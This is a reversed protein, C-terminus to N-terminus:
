PLIADYKHNAQIVKYNYRRTVGCQIKTRSVPSGAIDKGVIVLGKTMKPNVFGVDDAVDEKGCWHNRPDRLQYTTNAGLPLFVKTKKLVKMKLSATLYPFDFLTTGRTGTLSLGNAFGPVNETIAEASAVASTFSLEKTDDYLAVEYIDIEQPACTEQAGNLEMCRITIDLVAGSFLVKSAGSSIRSDLSFISNIDNVGRDTGSEVGNAGYLWASVLTQPKSTGNSEDVLFNNKVVINSGVTKIQNSLFRKYSRKARARIKRPARKRRYQVTYDHQATIGLRSTKTKTRTNTRIFSKGIRTPNKMMIRSPGSYTFPMTYNGFSISRPRKNPNVM